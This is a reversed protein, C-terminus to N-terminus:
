YIVKDAYPKLKEVLDEVTDLFENIVKESDKIFGVLEPNSKLEDPIEITVPPLSGFKKQRVSWM